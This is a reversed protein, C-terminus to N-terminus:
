NTSGDLWAQFEKVRRHTAKAKVIGRLKEEIRRRCNETHVERAAANLLSMCGPYKATFGFVELHERTIYARKPVLVHEALKTKNQKSETELRLRRPETVVVSVEGTSSRRHSRFLHWFLEVDGRM